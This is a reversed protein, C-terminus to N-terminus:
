KKSRVRSLTEPSMGIMSAIYNLPVQNFLEKNYEFLHQYRMEATMSLFSLVREELHIFCKGLFLRERKAWNYIYTNIKNYDNKSISYLTVDTIAQIDFRAPQDFYFASLDTVLENPSSIWQTIVKDLTTASIRLYGSQVISLVTKSTNAVTHSDLKNLKQLKFLPAVLNAEAEQAAM